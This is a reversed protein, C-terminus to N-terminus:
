PRHWWWSPTLLVDGRELITCHRELRTHVAANAHADRMSHGYLVEADRSIHARLYPTQRPPVFCWRKRGLIQVFLNAYKGCHFPSGTAAGGIFSRKRLEEAKM